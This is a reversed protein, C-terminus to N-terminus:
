TQSHHFCGSIVVQFPCRAKAVQRDHANRPQCRLRRHARAGRNRNTAERAVKCVQESLEQSTPWSARQVASARDQNQKPGEWTPQEAAARGVSCSSAGPQLYISGQAPSAQSEPGCGSKNAQGSASGLLEAGPSYLQVLSREATMQTNQMGQGQWTRAM